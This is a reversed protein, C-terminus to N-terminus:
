RGSAPLDAHTLVGPPPFAWARVNEHFYGYLIPALIIAALMLIAFIAIAFRGTARGGIGWLKFEIEDRSRM